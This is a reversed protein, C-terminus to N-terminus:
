NTNQCQKEELYFLHLVEFFSIRCWLFKKYLLQIKQFLTSYYFTINWISSLCEVYIGTWFLIKCTNQWCRHNKRESEVWWEAKEYNSLSNFSFSADTRSHWSREFIKKVYYRAFKKYLLQIKQFLTIYNSSYNIIKKGHCEVCISTWFLIKCIGQRASHNKRAQEVRRKANEYNSLSNFSFSANNWYHRVCELIKKDYYRASTIYGNWGGKQYNRWKLYSFYRIKFYVFLVCCNKM